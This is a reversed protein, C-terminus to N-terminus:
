DEADDDEDMDEADYDDGDDDDPEKQAGQRSSSEGVQTTPMDELWKNNQLYESYPLGM